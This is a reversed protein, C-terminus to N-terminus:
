LNVIGKHQGWAAEINRSLFSMWIEELVPGTVKVKYLSSSKTIFGQDKRDCTYKFSTYYTKKKQPKFMWMKLHLQPYEQQILHKTIYQFM